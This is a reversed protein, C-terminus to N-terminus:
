DEPPPSPRSAEHNPDSEPPDVPELAAATEEPDDISLRDMWAYLKNDTVGPVKLLDDFSEYPRYEILRKALAPGVGTLTQLEDESSSNLLIVPGDPQCVEEFPDRFEEPLEQSSPSEIDKGVVHDSETVGEPHDPWDQVPEHAPEDHHYDTHYPDDHHYPDVSWSEDHNSDVPHGYPDHEIHSQDEEYLHAHEREYQERELRLREAQEEESLEDPSTGLLRAYRAEKEQEAALRTKERSREIAWAIWICIEYLLILPGGLLALTFVDPPTLIAAAILIVVIAYSRTNRMVRATLLELKVLIVVIIPLQFSIGFVLVLRTVFTIYESIQYHVVKTTDSTLVLKDNAGDYYIGLKSGKEVVLLQNLYDRVSQKLAPDLEAAGPTATQDPAPAPTPAKGADEPKADPVPAIPLVRVPIYEVVAPKNASSQIVGVRDLYFKYFFQLAIPVAMFFAFAGGVLFLVFGMGVGPVIYRKEAQKLGPMIFEGAFWVLVPFSLILAAIFATKISLMLIEQPSLTLFDIVNWLSTGDDTKALKAPLQIFDFIQVNFAFTLITMVCVTILMKGLTKRLDELHDLFPKEYPDYGEDAGP